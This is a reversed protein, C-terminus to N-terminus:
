SKSANHMIFALYGIVVFAIYSAPLPVKFSGFVVEFGLIARILHLLAIVAFIVSALKLSQNKNM